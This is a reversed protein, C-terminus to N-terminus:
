FNVFCRHQSDILSFANPILPNVSLVVRLTQWTVSSREINRLPAHVGGKDRWSAEKCKLAICLIDSKWWKLFNKFLVFLPM